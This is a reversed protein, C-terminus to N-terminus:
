SKAVTYIEDIILQSANTNFLDVVSSDKLKLSKINDLADKISNLLSEANLDKEELIQVLGNNKLLMANKYQENHSVWPIPILLAPKQLVLLEAITHAGSRSVVLDAKKYVEGINEEFIFKSLFYQGPSKKDLSDYYQKLKEYSQLVSNDGCQHIVNCFTLLEPLAMRVAENIVHSGAKGGTVYITPLTNDLIFDNTTSNFIAPRLPLGTYVVNKDNFYEASEKWSILNKKAFHSILKNAYGIVLTQEHTVAPIGLLWGSIVVPVALYGGFSLIVDPKIKILFYLSQFFGYIIKLFNIPNLNKYFKGSNIVYFPIRLATIEQYELTDTKNGKQSHRHGFWFLQAKPDHSQIASIVPLASSHHGGTIVIKM